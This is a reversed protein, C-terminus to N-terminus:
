DEPYCLLSILLNDIWQQCKTKLEDLTEAQEYHFDDCGNLLYGKDAYFSAEYRGEDFDCDLTILWEGITGESAAWSIKDARQVKATYNRIIKVTSEISNPQHIGFEAPTSDIWLRIMTEDNM